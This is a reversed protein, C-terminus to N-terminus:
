KTCYSHNAIILDSSMVDSWDEYVYKYSLYLNFQECPDDQLDGISYISKGDDSLYYESYHENGINYSSNVWEAWTMGAQANYTTGNIDFQILQNQNGVYADDQLVKGCRLCYTRNNYTFTETDCGYLGCIYVRASDYYVKDQNYTYAAPYIITDTAKIQSEYSPPVFLDEFCYVLGDRIEFMTEGTALNKNYESNVLDNWTMGLVFEFANYISLSEPNKLFGVYVNSTNLTGTDQQVVFGYNKGPIITEDLSVDEFDSTKIVPEAYGSTNYDSALWERWTMGAEAQLTGNPIYIQEVSTSPATVEVQKTGIVTYTTFISKISNIENDVDQHVYVGDILKAVHYQNSSNTKALNLYGALYIAEDLTDHEQSLIDYINISDGVVGNLSLANDNTFCYVIYTSYEAKVDNLSPQRSVTNIVNGNTDKTVTFTSIVYAQYSAPFRIETITYEYPVTIYTGPIYNTQTHFEGGVFDFIEPQEEEVTPPVDPEDNAPPVITNIGGNDPNYEIEVDNPNTVTDSDIGVNGLGEVVKLILGCRDCTNNDDADIHGLAEIDQIVYNYGCSCEFKTSGMSTCTSNAFISTTYNHKTNTIVGCISCKTHADFTGINVEKHGNAQVVEQTKIVENCVSCHSGATLGTQTCTASVAEDVVETHGNAKITEQTKIIESCISCHSGETLGTTTCTAAVAKDTVETHGKAAVDSDTYTDGCRSCTHTTYGSETCTPQKVTSKYDHGLAATLKTHCVTCEQANTCNAEAGITHGNAPVIEQEVIVTNCVSCHKGQTLGTTTCTAAVAKDAVETHAKKPIIEMKTSGCSCTYTLVGSASCTAQTTITSSTYNHDLAEGYTYTEDSKETCGNCKYFYVAASQCTAASKIYTDSTDQVNFNHVHREYGCHTCQNNNFVHNENSTTLTENCGKCKTITTHQNENLFQHENISQNLHTNPDKKFKFTQTSKAGCTCSYFYTAETACNGATNLNANTILQKDFVCIHESENGNISPTLPTSQIVSGTNSMSYTVVTGTEDGSNFKMDKGASVITLQGKNNTSKSYLIQYETGWPDLANTVLKNGEVRVLLSSDLNVNILDALKNLDNTFESQEIGVQHIATELAKIDSLVGTEKATDTTNNVSAILVIMLISVIAM